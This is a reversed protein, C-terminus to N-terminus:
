LLTSHTTESERRTANLQIQHPDIIHGVVGDSV